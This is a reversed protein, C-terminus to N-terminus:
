HAMEGLPRELTVDVNGCHICEGDKGRLHVARPRGAQTRCPYGTHYREAVLRQETTSILECSYFLPYSFAIGRPKALTRRERAQEFLSEMPM